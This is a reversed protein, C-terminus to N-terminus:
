MEKLIQKDEEDPIYFYYKVREIEIGAFLDTGIPLTVSLLEGAEVRSLLETSVRNRAVFSGRPYFPRRKNFIFEEVTFLGAGEFVKLTDDFEWCWFDIM